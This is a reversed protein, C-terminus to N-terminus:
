DEARIGGNSAMSSSRDYMRPSQARAAYTAAPGLSGGRDTASPVDLNTRLAPGTDAPRDGTVKTGPIRGDAVLAYVKKENLNLYQSVQRVDLFRPPDEPLASM